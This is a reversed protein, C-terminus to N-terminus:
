PKAAAVRTQVAPTAQPLAQMRFASSSVIGMVLASFRYDEAQAGRIIGRLQPMDQADLERGIAYIMLKRTLSLM